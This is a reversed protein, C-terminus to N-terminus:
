GAWYEPFLYLWLFGFFLIIAPFVVYTLVFYILSNFM